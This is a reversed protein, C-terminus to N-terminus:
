SATCGEERKVEKAITMCSEHKFFSCPMTDHCVRFVQGVGSRGCCRSCTCLLKSHLNLSYVRGLSGAHILPESVTSTCESRQPRTGSFSRGNVGNCLCYM